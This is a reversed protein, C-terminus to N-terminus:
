PQAKPMPQATSKIVNNLVPTTADTWNFKQLMTQRYVGSISPNAHFMLYWAGSWDQFVAGHGANKFCNDTCTQNNILPASRKSFRGPFSSAAMPASINVQYSQAGHYYGIQGSGYYLFVNGDKKFVGAAEIMRWNDEIRLERTQQSVDTSLLIVRSVFAPETPNSWQLEAAYVDNYTANRRCNYILWAKSRSADAFVSPDWCDQLADHHIPNNRWAYPGNIGDAVNRSGIYISGRGNYNGTTVALYKGNVKHGVETGFWKFHISEDASM